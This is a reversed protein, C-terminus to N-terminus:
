KVRILARGCHGCRYNQPYQVIPTMRFRTYQQGCSPCAVIYKAEVPDVGKEESNTTRKITYQPLQSNVKTALRLWLGTHSMAGNITHLLEHMITNKAAQDCVEDQLLRSSVEIDYATSSAKHCHGWRKKARTNVSWNINKAPQIGIALLDAVCEAALKDLDKM